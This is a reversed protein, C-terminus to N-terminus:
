EKDYLIIFQTINTLINKKRSTEMDGCVRVMLGEKHAHIAQQYKERGLTIFVNRAKGSLTDIIKIEGQDETNVSDLRVVYGNIEIDNNPSNKRLLKGAEKLTEAIDPRVLFTNKLHWNKMPPRTAAWSIGFHAGDDGCIEAIDSLAECFNASLGSSVAEEFANIDRTNAADVAIPILRSIRTMVRREFPEDNEEITENDALLPTVLDRLRPPVPIHMSIVFSGRETHGMKIKNLLDEVEKPYRSVYYPRTKIISQAVSAIMDISRKILDSANTLPLSVEPKDKFVTVRITDTNAQLLDAIISELARNEVNKLIEIFDIVRNVYDKLDTDLPLLVTFWEENVLKEWISAKHPIINKKIWLREELYSECHLPLIKQIISVDYTSFIM